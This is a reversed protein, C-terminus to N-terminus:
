VTDPLTQVVVRVFFKASSDIAIVSSVHRGLTFMAGCLTAVTSKTRERSRWCESMVALTERKSRMSSMVGVRLLKPVEYLSLPLVLVKSWLLGSM